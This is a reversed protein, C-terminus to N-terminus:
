AAAATPVRQSRIQARYREGVGHLYTLRQDPTGAQPQDDGAM